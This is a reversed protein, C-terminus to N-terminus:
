GSLSPATNWCAWIGDKKRFYLTIQFPSGTSPAPPCTYVLTTGDSRYVPRATNDYNNLVFSIVSNTAAAPFDSLYTDVDSDSPLRISGIEGVSLNALIGGCFMEATMPFNGGYYVLKTTSGFGETIKARELAARPATFSEGVSVVAGSLIGLFTGAVSNVTNCNVITANVTQTTSTDATITHVTPNLWLKQTGTGSNWENLNM